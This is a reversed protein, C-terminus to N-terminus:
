NCASQKLTYGEIILVDGKIIWPTDKQIEPDDAKKDM